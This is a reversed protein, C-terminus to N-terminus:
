ITDAIDATAPAIPGVPALISLAVEGVPLSATEGGSTLALDLTYAGLECMVQSAIDGRLNCEKALYEFQARVQLLTAKPVMANAEAIAAPPDSRQAALPTAGVDLAPKGSAGAGAPHEVQNRLDSIRDFASRLAARKAELSAVRAQLEDAERRSAARLAELEDTSATLRAQLAAHERDRALGLEALSQEGTAIATKFQERERESALRLQDFEERSATAAAELAEREHDFAVRLEALIEERLEPKTAPEGRERNFDAELEALEAEREQLAARLADRENLISTAIEMHGEVDHKLTDCEAELADAHRTVTEYKYRWLGEEDSAATMRATMTELLDAARRLYAANYGNSMLEAFRRLFGATEAVDPTEPTLSPDTMFSAKEFRLGSAGAHLHVGDRRM